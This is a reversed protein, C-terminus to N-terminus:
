RTKIILIDDLLTMEIIKETLGHQDLIKIIDMAMTLEKCDFIIIHKSEPIKFKIFSVDHGGFTLRFSGDEFHLITNQSPQLNKLKNISKNISNIKHIPEFSNGYDIVLYNFNKITFM